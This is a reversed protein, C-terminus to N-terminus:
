GSHHRRAALPVRWPPSNYLRLGVSLLFLMLSYFFTYAIAGSFWYFGEVPSPLSQLSFFLIPVGVLVVYKGALGLVRVLITHLFFATSGMLMVLMIFATVPYLTESFVVPNIATLFTDSFRGQWTNYMDGFYEFAVLLVAAVNHTDRYVVGTRIGHNFDDVGPYNYFAIVFLPLLSLVFLVAFVITMYKENYITKIIKSNEIIAKVKYEV